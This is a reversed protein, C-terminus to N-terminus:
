KDFRKFPDFKPPPSGGKGGGKMFKSTLSELSSKTKAVAQNVTEMNMKSKIAEVSMLNKSTLFYVTLAGLGTIVGVVLFLNLPEDKVPLTTKQGLIEMSYNGTPLEIKHSFNVEGSQGAALTVNSNEVVTDNIMLAVPLTGEKTGSNTINSWVYVKQGKSVVDPRFNIDLATFETFPMRVEIERQVSIYGSRTAALNHKGSNTFTYTLVGSSDTTGISTGDLTINAVTIANGSGSVIVKISVPVYQDIFEPLVLSLRNDVYEAIQVTKIAKEYGLKTATFNHQGARTLMHDLKGTSNTTGIVVGDFSVEANDQATGTGSTVSITITDKVMMSSPVSIGLQNAALASGNVLIYPYFRVVSSDAVKFKINKMFDVTSGSSLTVPSPNTMTIGTGSVSAEMIGFRDGNNVTTYSESIQFTGKIFAATAEKGRFISEVRLAILPLEKVAGVDKEYVYVEGKEVFDDGGTVENGDKLLTLWVEGAGAGLNVDKIKLVYGDNLTLTSGAYIVRQTDDDILVKHLQNREITSIPTSTLIGAPYGAFYKEAMFGIVNYKGLTSSKFSVQQASTIYELGNKAVTTTGATRNLTLKETGVDDDLNYYFGEFNLPTWESSNENNSITGRVEYEGSRKIMPAFRLVSKNKAVIFKLDGMIDITSGSSLTFSNKNTMTIGTDSTSSIEMMGYRNSSSASTYSESIQFIGDIQVMNDTTGMFVSGIHLAILPLDNVSGVKKSYTYTEGVAVIDFDIEGGDKLISIMAERGAGVDKLTVAYGDGLPYTSSARVTFTGKDDKLVKHLQAYGITSIPSGGTIDRSTEARYGAFYKDAMFGIVNYGGWGKFQFTVNETTTTYVLDGSGISRDNNSDLRIQLKESGVDDNVDYYFAYFSYTDWFYTTNMSKSGDWVRNGSSYTKSHVNITWSRLVSGNANSANATLTFNGPSTAAFTFNADQGVNVIDTEKLSGDITWNVTVGQTTPTVKFIKSQGVILDDITSATPDYTILPLPPAGVVFPSLGTVNGSVKDNSADLYTTKDDWSVGNYHYLKINSENVGGPTYGLEITINGLSGANTSINYYNGLESFAPHPNWGQLSSYVNVSTNGASDVQEFIVKLNSLLIVEVGPGVPTNPVQVNWTWTIQSSNGNSNFAQATVTYTGAGASNNSYDSVGASESDNRVEFGNIKWSINADQDVTVNFHQTVNVFSNVTPSSPLPSGIIPAVTSVTFSSGTLNVIDSGNKATFNYYYTGVSLSGKSLTYVKGDTTNADNSDSEVM